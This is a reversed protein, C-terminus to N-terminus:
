TKLGINDICINMDSPAGIEVKILGDWGSLSQTTSGASPVWPWSEIKSPNANRKYGRISVSRGASGSYEDTVTVSTLSFPEGGNKTIVIHTGNGVCIRRSGKVDKM